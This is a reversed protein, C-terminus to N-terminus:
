VKGIGTVSPETLDPMPVAACSLTTEIPDPALLGPDPWAQIEGPPAAPFWPAMVSLSSPRHSWLATSRLQNTLTATTSTGHQSVWTAAGHCFSHSTYQLVLLSCAQIACHLITVFTSWPLPNLGSPGLSFLPASPPHIHSLHWLHTVPCKVGDVEPTVVHVGSSVTLITARNTGHDWVLEGSRLFCAFALSFAVQLILHDQPFLDAMKGMTLLVQHLLPLTVPLKAGSHGVGHLCKYGCLTCKLRGCSFGSTDLGLDVHHSRLASLGHKALHFPRGLHFSSPAGRAHCRTSAALSHWLVNTAHTSIGLSAAVGPPPGAPGSRM